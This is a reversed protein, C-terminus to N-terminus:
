ERNEVGQAQANRKLLALISPWNERTVVLRPLEYEDNLGSDAYVFGDQVEGFACIGFAYGARELEAKTVPSFAGFPYAFALAPLGSLEETKIKAKYIEKDFDARDSKYLEETVYLHHYGHAGIWCGEGELRQVAADGMAFSTTGIIAPYVFLAPRIGRPLFVKEMALPVTRHGDDITAVVNLAGELRGSLADQLDVFRYGLASIADVQSALESVPFDTSVSSVGIFTHWCLLLARNRFASVPPLPAPLAPGPVLAIGEDGSAAAPYPQAGLREGSCLLCVFLAARAAVGARGSILGHFM